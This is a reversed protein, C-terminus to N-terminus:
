ELPGSSVGRAGTDRCRCACRRGRVHSQEYMVHSSTIMGTRSTTRMCARPPMAACRQRFCARPGGVEQMDVTGEDKAMVWRALYAAFGLMGACVLLVGVLAASTRLALYLVLLFFAGALAAAVRPDASALWQSVQMRALVMIIATPWTERVHILDLRRNRATCHECAIHCQKIIRVCKGSPMGLYEADEMMVAAAMSQPSSYTDYSLLCSHVGIAGGLRLQCWHICASMNCHRTCAALFLPSGAAVSRAALGFPTRMYSMSQDCFLSDDTIYTRQLRVLTSSSRSKAPFVRALAPSM